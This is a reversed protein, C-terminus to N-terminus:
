QWWSRMRDLMGGAQREAPQGAAPAAPEGARRAEDMASVIADSVFSELFAPWYGDLGALCAAWDGAQCHHELLSVVKSLQARQSEDFALDFVRVDDIQVSGPGLLDFRVRMSEVPEAPLDDVQLVFQSWEGTLPRGGSLGGVAAFRYYERNGQVGEIAVRLPPQSGGSAIRLWAAVSIRGTRPAPFPNSRLTSLGNFSTFELGRGAQAAGGAGPVLAMAGRREEVVEWGAVTVSRGGGPRGAGLEFGPNDLVDLPTPAELVARRQRLGAIRSALARRASEDHDLRGSQVTVGGDVILTRVGWPELPIAVERDASLPLSSRDVADVVASPQGGLMLMARLSAASANVVHVWTMGGVRCTRVVLSTPLGGVPELPVRPLSEYGLRAATAPGCATVLGSDFVIEPDAVALVEALPRGDVASAQVVGPREVAAGGFPGHPAIGALDITIPEEVIVAARRAAGGAARAVAISRNASSRRARERIDGEASHVHPTVFVVSGASPSTAAARDIGAIRVSDDAATATMLSPQHAVALDGDAFLTTPVLYLSWGADVTAIAAALRGHFGAVEHCRWAIWRDRLPGEVLRARDAFRGDGEPPPPPSELTALFRGFTADDLGWALGPLHLWGDHPLVVAIGTVAASGRLRGAAEAVLDVVSRQVLPDLVNYHLGGGALRRPRGDRGVCVLGPPADHAALATEVAPLPADFCLGPILGLGQRSHVRSVVELVDPAVASGGAATSSSWRPAHRTLESPWVAAGQAYVTVLAGGAAQSALSEALHRAAALHTSWDAVPKGGIEAVRGIGGFERALEPTSVFAYTQRSGAGVNALSGGVQTRPAPPLRAPGATVRVRGVTATMSTSPNAILVLPNRTTPWFVFRHIALRPEEASFRPRCVEFGGAHRSEVVTEAPDTELVCVGVVADQDTPYQIEVAHPLGPQVGALVIGEWAPGTDTGAPPLRLMPGLAHATVVSHGQTLLGSLRPVMASVNPMPVNPLSVNPLPVSPMPVRPLRPLSVSPLPMDSVTPLHMGPLRRLREHLRPSGPDLEYVTKWDDAPPPEDAADAVAVLEITRSVLPRSWRMGGQEVAELEVDYAGEGTPLTVDFVIPEFAILGRSDAQSVPTMVTSQAAIEGGQRGGRLRMRLDVAHGGQLRTAILPEVRLRVLDGPRRVLGLARDTFGTGGAPSATVRLADGPAPKITLRNGLTDIAHQAPEVLLEALSVDVATPPQSGDATALRIVLRADEWEPVCIEVGDNALPRPQHLAIGTGTDHVLAAADPELSLTRWTFSRRDGAERAPQGEAVVEISGAWAQPTGGGWQVRLSVPRREAGQEAAPPQVLQALDAAGAWFAVCSLGIAALMPSPRAIAM